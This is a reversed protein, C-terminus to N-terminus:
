FLKVLLLILGNFLFIPVKQASFTRFIKFYHEDGVVQMTSISLQPAEKSTDRGM